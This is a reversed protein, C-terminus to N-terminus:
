PPHHLRSRQRRRSLWVKSWSQYDRPVEMAKLEHWAKVADERTAGKEAALFDSMFNIYRGTPIRAFTGETQNLHVYEAVLEGYTIKVNRVIQEERWRNLRYRV